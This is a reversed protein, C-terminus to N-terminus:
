PLDESPSAGPGDSPVTAGALGHEDIYGSPEASSSPLTWRVSTGGNRPPADIWIEGGHFEVIKKCLALGIGTGEFADRSHLRQFIVFVRERFTEDIGIGNDTFTFTWRDDTPEATLHIRPAVDTRRYKLANALLNQLLAALLSPDGPVVPLHEHHFEAETAIIPASYSEAVTDAIAALDCEVFTDTTRGVRSFNLLDSILAQMRKAGDVAYEIYLRGKEDLEDAYRQELLQCFSAVKRLPEQLDHSAVYAFQELDRNSRELSQSQHALESRAIEAAALEAVLRRRMDDVRTALQGIERPGSVVIETDFRGLDVSDTQDVLQEIPVVVRRRLLWAGFLGSGTVGALALGIAVGLSTTATDLDSRAARSGASVDRELRDVAARVDDFALKSMLAAQEGDDGNTADPSNAIPEAVDRRWTAAAGTVDDLRREIPAQEDALLSHLNRTLAAEATKGDEYPELFRGDHTQAFGRVGTEQDLLSTRLKETQVLAPGLRNFVESRAALLNSFSVIVVITGVLLVTVAVAMSLNALSGLSGLAGRRETPHESLALGVGAVLRDGTGRRRAM